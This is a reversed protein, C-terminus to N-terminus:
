KLPINALIDKTFSWFKQASPINAKEDPSHAGRITPGFSVMEMEPYNAGIIGCELGAHCAVVHPKDGFKETYIKEMLKVIESGPKPKWGPYSGSFVTKMGALEAVSKLQEAVSDKSSEVSSRSLNLIKLAGEKLEVRAVNNSSEVLDKVDPSMRYVGNHLSKLALIIKKSDEESLAKESTTSNEINIHLHPEITAFEELIEKKIGNTVGDIFEQANRVSVVAVAERPIANRLGGGDVSILQINEKELGKYLIRGLIVNANGFGKHIDMGSHGGQLGKVEIRITQGKAVETNYDQSITVDIGGACGIDIEDDEETDLNLLIQGTLQGPKLGLAGTMGTEEDITFLAELDPHPIDTSELISMITAVGLGNDAGLTTGKAKVWDGDVEMKIGETEFDFNVDNNKQCVMDLHSQLVVSKRNEMGSTAPKKIIVNGVEDVTTELGLNEGFEKIFAIVREEKKSPRPVANLKSFNKWIMQPEITSLEM